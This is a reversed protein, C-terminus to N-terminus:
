KAVKISQWSYNIEASHLRVLGPFAHHSCFVLADKEVARAMLMKASATTQKPYSDFFSVWEPHTAQIPHRFADVVHLLTADESVIEVAFHDSRHGPAAVFRIGPLVETEPEVLTIRDALSPLVDSGYRARNAKRQPLTEAPGRWGLVQAWEEVMQERGDANTWLDWAKQPLIIHANPFNALGGVHDGDGHTILIHTIEASDIGAAAMSNVLQAAPLGTDILVRYEGMDLYLLNMGGMFQYPLGAADMAAYLEDASTRNFVAAIELQRAGDFLSTCEINGVKFHHFQTM